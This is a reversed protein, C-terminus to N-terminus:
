QRSDPRPRRRTRARRRRALEKYEEDKSDDPNMRLHRPPQRIRFGLEKGFKIAEDDAMWTNDMMHRIKYMWADYSEKTLARFVYKVIRPAAAIDAAFVSNRDAFVTCSIQFAFQHMGSEEPALPRLTTGGDIVFNCTNVTSFYHRKGKLKEKEVHGNTYMWVRRPEQWYKQGLMPKVLQSLRGEQFVVLEEEDFNVHFEDDEKNEVTGEAM